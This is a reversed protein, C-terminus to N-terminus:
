TRRRLAAMGALGAALLPLTASADPVNNGNGGNGTQGPGENFTVEDLFIWRNYSSDLDLTLSTGSWAGNFVLLAHDLNPYSSPDVTFANGGITVSEPLYVAAATWNAMSLAVQNISVASAFNFTISPNGGDWGVWEYSTLSVGPILDAYHGDTLQSGTDDYYGAGLNFSYSTPVVPSANTQSLLSLALAALLVLRPHKMLLFRCPNLLLNPHHIPIILRVFSRRREWCRRHWFSNEPM